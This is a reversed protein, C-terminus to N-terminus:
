RGSLEATLKRLSWGEKPMFARFLPVENDPGLINYGTIYYRLWGSRSKYDSPKCGLAWRILTRWKFRDWKVPQERVIRDLEAWYFRELVITTAADRCMEKDRLTLSRKERQDDERKLEFALPVRKDSGIIYYRIIYYRIWGSRSKYDNPKRSLV